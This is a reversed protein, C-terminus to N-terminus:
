SRCILHHSLNDPRRACGLDLAAEARRAIPGGPLTAKAQWLMGGIPIPNRPVHRETSRPEVAAAAGEPTLHFIPSFKM